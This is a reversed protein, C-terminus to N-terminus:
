VQSLNLYANYQDPKLAMAARFDAAAPALDDRNFHQIGHALLLAYRANDSPDLLLARQLDAEAESFARLKESAFSRFLYGWVFDPQRSLCANLDSRAAEWNRLKLHCVALCFQAWFHGPQLALARNFSDKAGNQDANRYHQLGILFHDLPGQRPLS